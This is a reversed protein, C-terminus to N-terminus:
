PLKVQNYIIRKYNPPGEQFTLNPLLSEVVALLLRAFVEIGEGAELMLRRIDLKEASPSEKFSKTAREPLKIEEIRRSIFFM